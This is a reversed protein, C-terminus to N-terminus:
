RDKPSRVPGSGEAVNDDPSSTRTLNQTITGYQKYTVVQSAKEQLLLLRAAPMVRDAAANRQHFTKKVGDAYTVEHLYDTGLSHITHPEQTPKSNNSM